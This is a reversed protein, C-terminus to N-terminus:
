PNLSRTFSRCAPLPICNYVARPRFFFFDLHGSSGSSRSITFGFLADYFLSSSPSSSTGIPPPPPPSFREVVESEPLSALPWLGSSPLYFRCNLRSLPSTKCVPCFARACFALPTRHEPPFTPVSIRPLSLHHDLPFLVSLAYLYRHPHFPSLFVLRIRSPSISDDFANWFTVCVWGFYVNLFLYDAKRFLLLCLPPSSRFSRGRGLEV